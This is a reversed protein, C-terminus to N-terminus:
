KKNWNYSTNMSYNWISGVFAGILVAFYINSTNDYILRASIFNFLAGFSCFFYYKLLGILFRYGRKKLDSYTFENNLVFNFFITFLISLILALNFNLFFQLFYFNTLQFIIGICGIFSYIFYRAPIFKGIIKDILLSIFDVLVRSNLKSEGSHRKKFEFPIESYKITKKSSLIIDLLLKFGINSLKNYNNIFFIRNIIFFGTLVDSYNIKFLKKLLFNVFLSAKYRGQNLLENSELFRSASVLDIDKAKIENYLELIKKPPHQLDADMFVVYESNSSLAGLILASSLGRNEFRKILFINKENNQLINIIDSTENNNSDDVFIIEWSIDKNQFTAKIEEFLININGKENLTPVIISINKKMVM